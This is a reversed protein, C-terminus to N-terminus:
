KEETTNREREKVWDPEPPPQNTILKGAATNSLRAERAAYSALDYIDRNQESIDRLADKMAEFKTELTTVRREQVEFREWVRGAALFFGCLVIVGGLKMYVKTNESIELSMFRKRKVVPRLADVPVGKTPWSRDAGAHVTQEVAM